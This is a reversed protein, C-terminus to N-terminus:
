GALFNLEGEGNVDGAESVSYGANDGNVEGDIKFGDTGTLTSLNASAAFGGAKGHILCASGAM